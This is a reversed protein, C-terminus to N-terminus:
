KIRMIYILKFYSPNNNYPQHYAYNNMYEKLRPKNNVTIFRSANSTVSYDRTDVYENSPIKNTIKLTLGSGDTSTTTTDYIQSDNYKSGRDLIKVSTVGGKTNVSIVKGKATTSGPEANIIDFLDHEVYGTGVANIYVVGVGKGYDLHFYNNQNFKHNMPLCDYCSVDLRKGEEFLIKYDEYDRFLRRKVPVHGVHDVPEEGDTELEPPIISNLLSNSNYYYQFDYNTPRSNSIRLMKNPLMMTNDNLIFNNDRIETPNPNPNNPDPNTADTTIGTCLNTTTKQSNYYKKNDLSIDPDELPCNNKKDHVVYKKFWNTGKDSRLLEPNYDNNYVTGLIFPINDTLFPLYNKEKDAFNEPNELLLPDIGNGLYRLRSIKEIRTFKGSWAGVIFKNHLDPTGNDGNCIAWGKPIDDVTGSFALITGIEYFYNSSFIPFFFLLISVTIVISLSVISILKYTNINNFNTIGKGVNTNSM